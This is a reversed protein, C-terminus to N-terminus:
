PTPSAEAAMGGMATACTPALDAMGALSIPTGAALDLRLLVGEGEAVGTGFAPYTLYMAGDPGFGLGVGYPIDTVVAEASDPGTRRVVRGSNPNLFPPEELNDTAIETAYLMGDPGLAIATVATLGTWFDTVTGDAAVHVVKAAGEPYPISTLSGFYAGGDPALAIGDFVPHDVSLDAILEIRGDPTVTILQGAVSEQLWLRDTGAELSFLSGDPGYDPAIFEPPNARFWASLDAVLDATGDANIRYVGNPVDPFGGNIGGGSSLAYLHDGLVAVDMIGWIWGVDRWLTSPLGEAVPVACGDEIRVVSATLGGFFGDPTGDDLTGPIDGGTGALALYLEGAAGWTFGRPNTLGSAVVEVGPPLAGAMAGDAPTAEQGAGAMPLALGLAGVLAIALSRVTARTM